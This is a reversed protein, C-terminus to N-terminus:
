SQGGEEGSGVKSTPWLIWVVEFPEATVSTVECDAMETATPTAVHVAVDLNPAQQLAEILERVTM